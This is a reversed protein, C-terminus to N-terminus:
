DNQKKGWIGLEKAKKEIKIYSVEPFYVVNCKTCVEAKFRGLNKEKYNYTVKKTVVKGDCEVCKKM